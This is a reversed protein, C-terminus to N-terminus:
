SQIHNIIWETAKEDAHIPYTIELNECAEMAVWRYLNMTEMLSREIDTKDYYSYANKLGAIIRPDAWKEIFRGNHWTDYQLGNKAKSHIEVIYLLNRKMGSDIISKAVFLEGRLLKKAGNVAHFWFDNIQNLLDYESIRFAEQELHQINNLQILENDKDLIVRIGRQIVKHIEPHKFLHPIGKAPYCVYDVDLADEHLVRREKTLGLADNEIFTIWYEGMNTLWDTSTIYKEPNTSFIVLDLDSWEDAAENMRARSGVIIAGRIDDVKKAWDIFRNILKEYEEHHNLM